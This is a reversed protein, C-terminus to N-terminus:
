QKGAHNPKQIRSCGIAIAEVREQTATDLLAEPRGTVHWGYAGNSRVDLVSQEIFNKTTVIM